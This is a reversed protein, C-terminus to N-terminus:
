NAPAPGPAPAEETPLIVGNIVHIVGNDAIIDTNLIEVCVPEFPNTGCVFANKPYIWVDNVFAGGGASQLTFTLPYGGISEVTLGDSLDTSLVVKNIVHAELISKVLMPDLETLGVDLSATLKAFADNNPAFVTLEADSSSAADLLEPAYTQLAAVLLSFDPNGAAIEAITEAQVSSVVAAFAAAVLCSVKSVSVMIFPYVQATRRTYSTIISSPIAELL